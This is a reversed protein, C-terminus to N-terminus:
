GAGGPAYGPLFVGLLFVAVMFVVSAMFLFFLQKGSLQIERFPQDTMGGTSTLVDSM